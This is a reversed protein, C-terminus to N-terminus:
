VLRSGLPASRASVALVDPRGLNKGPRQPVELEVQRIEGDRRTQRAMALMPEVALRGGRVLGLASAASSAKLVADSEDIVVASSRLVSLVTDVGPPLTPIEPALHAGRPPRTRERESIRFALMAIVGTSLGAIAAVAAVAANVDM